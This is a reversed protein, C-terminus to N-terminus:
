TTRTSRLHFDKLPNPHTSICFNLVVFTTNFEIRSAVGETFTTHPSSPLKACFVPLKDRTQSSFHFFVGNQPIRTVSFQETLKIRQKKCFNRIPLHCNPASHFRKAFFSASFRFRAAFHSEHIYVYICIYMYSKICKRM